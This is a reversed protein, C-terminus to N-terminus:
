GQPPAAVAARTPDFAETAAPLANLGGSRMNELDHLAWRRMEDRGIRNFQDEARKWIDEAERHAGVGTESVGWMRLTFGDSYRTWDDEGKLMGLAEEYKGRGDKARGTNFLYDAYGRTNVVKYFPTPARAIAKLWYQEASPDSVLSLATALTMYEVDSAIDPAQQDLFAVQRALTALQTNIASTLIQHDAIRNERKATQFGRVNELQIDLIKQLSTAMESRIARREENKKNRASYLTSAISFLLATISIGLAIFERDM